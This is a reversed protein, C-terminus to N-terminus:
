EATSSFPVELWRLGRLDVLHRDQRRVVRLLVSACHPCRVVTGPGRDHVFVAGFAEVAGCGDCRGSAATMEVGFVEFFLGGLANGDVMLDSMGVEETLPRM